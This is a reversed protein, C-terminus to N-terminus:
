SEVTYAFEGVRGYRSSYVIAEAARTSGVYGMKQHWTDSPALSPSIRVVVGNTEELMRHHLHGTLWEHTHASAWGEKDETAMLLPLDKLKAGKGHTFGLQVGGFSYYKRPDLSRDIEVNVEDAYVAGLVEGMYFCADEDHNGPVVIARVPAYKLMTDIATRYLRVVSRFSEQWRGLGDQATGATTTRRSGDTNLADNGIPFVFQGVNFALAKMVLDEVAAQHEGEANWEGELPIKDYHLDPIHVCVLTPDEKERYIAGSSRSEARIDEILKDALQRLAPEYVKRKFTAKVRYLQVLVAEERIKRGTEDYTAIKPSSNWAGCEWRDVEWVDLDVECVAELQALTRIPDTTVFSLKATEGTEEYTRAEKEQALAIEELSRTDKTPKDNYGPITIQSPEGRLAKVVQAARHSGLEGGTAGTILDRSGGGELVEAIAWDPIEINYDKIYM